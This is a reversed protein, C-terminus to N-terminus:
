ITPMQTYGKLALGKGAWSDITGSTMLLWTATEKIREQFNKRKEEKM